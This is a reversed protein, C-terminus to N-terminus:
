EFINYNYSSYYCRYRDGFPVFTCIHANDPDVSKPMSLIGQRGSSLLSIADSSIAVGVLLVLLNLFEDGFGFPGCLALCFALTLQTYSLQM